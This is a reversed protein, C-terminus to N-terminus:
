LFSRIDFFKRVQKTQLESSNHAFHCGEGFECYGHKLLNRCLATKIIQGDEEVRAAPKALPHSRGSPHSHPLSQRQRNNGGILRQPQHQQPVSNNRWPQTAQTGNCHFHRPLYPQHTLNMQPLFNPQLPINNLPSGPDLNFSYSPYQIANAFNAFRSDIKGHPLHLSPYNQPLMPLPPLQPPINALNQPLQPQSSPVQGYPHAVHGPHGMLPPPHAMDIHLNQIGNFMSPASPINVTYLHNQQDSGEPKPIVEPVIIPEATIGINKEAESHYGEAIIKKPSPKSEEPNLAYNSQSQANMQAMQLLPAINPPPMM